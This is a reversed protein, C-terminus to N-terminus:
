CQKGMALLKATVIGIYNHQWQVCVYLTYKFLYLSLCVCLRVSLNLISFHARHQHNLPHNLSVASHSQLLQEFRIETSPFIEDRSCNHTKNQVRILCYFPNKQMCMSILFKEELCVSRFFHTALAATAVTSNM